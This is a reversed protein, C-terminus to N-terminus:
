HRTQRIISLGCLFFLCSKRSKEPSAHGDQFIMYIRDMKRRLFKRPEEAPFGCLVVKEDDLSMKEEFHIPTRAKKPGVHAIVMLITKSWPVLGTKKTWSGFGIKDPEISWM